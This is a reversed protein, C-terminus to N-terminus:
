NFRHSRCMALIGEAFLSQESTLEELRRKAKAQQERYFEADRRYKRITEVMETYDKVCFATGAAVPVDGYETTVAPIGADFAEAVSFGGGLRHPNVYLDASQLIGTVDECVGLMVSCELLWPHRECQMDYSDYKGIFLLECGEETLPQMANLFEESADADLRMGVVALVFKDTSLGLEERTYDRKKGKLKFTFRTEIIEASAKAREEESVSRGVMVFDTTTDQLASFTTSVSLVPCIGNVLEAFFSQEGVYVVFEPNVERIYELVGVTGEITDVPIKPQYFTFEEGQYTYTECLCYEEMRNRREGHYLVVGGLLGQDEGLSMLIVKKGLETKLIYCRELASKSVPHKEGLFGSMMVIVVGERRAEKGRREVPFTVKYHERIIEQMRKIYQGMLPTEMQPVRILLAKIQYLVYRYEMPTMDERALMVDCFLELYASKQFCKVLFWLLYVFYGDYMLETRLLNLIGQEVANRSYASADYEEEAYASSFRGANMVYELEECFSELQQYTATTEEKQLMGRIAELLNM